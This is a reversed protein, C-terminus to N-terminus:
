HMTPVEESDDLAPEPAQTRATKHKGRRQMKRARSGLRGAFKLFGDLRDLRKMWSVGEDLEKDLKSMTRPMGEDDEGLWTEVVRAFAIALGQVTAARKLGGLEVGAADLMWAQSKVAIANFELALVPDTRAAEYLARVFPKHPALHDIRTMLVDFLRDRAPQDGMDDDREDLVASDIERSFAKVLDIKSDYSERLVSLKVDAAEALQVLSVESYGNEAVLEQFTKMIKQRTKATAM